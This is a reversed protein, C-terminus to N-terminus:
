EVPQEDVDSMDHRINFQTADDVVIQSLRHDVLQQPFWAACNGCSDDPFSEHYTARVQVGDIWFNYWTSVEQLCPSDHTVVSEGQRFTVTDQYKVLVTEAMMMSHENNALVLYKGPRVGYLEETEQTVEIRGFM